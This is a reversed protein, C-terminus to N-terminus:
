LEERDRDRDKYGVWGGVWGGVRKREGARGVEEGRTRARM